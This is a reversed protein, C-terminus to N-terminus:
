YDSKNLDPRKGENAKKHEIIKENQWKHMGKKTGSTEKNYDVEKRELEKKSYRKQKGEGFKDEGRTTEGYKKVEGTKKDRLSYGEAPKDDLKNGHSKDEKKDTGVNNTSVEGSKIEKIASSLSTLSQTISTLAKSSHVPVFIQGPARTDSSGSRLIRSINQGSRILKYARWLGLGVPIIPFKGDPDNHLVPNNFGFHYPTFSEQDEENSLPDIQIFRGLQQDYTRANFDYLELGSGDSFEHTQLENGNYGKRNQLKGASKSSIGQMTLGFPYYYTCKKQTSVM